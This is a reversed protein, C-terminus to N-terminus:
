DTGSYMKSAFKQKKLFFFVVVEDRLLHFLM